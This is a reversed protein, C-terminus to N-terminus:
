GTRLRRPAFRFQKYIQTFEEGNEIIKAKGQVCVATHGGHKYVDVVLAIRPNKLLNKHMRTEYDTAILFSENDFIFSVPKVHPIDNHSTAVRCEEMDSLFDIENKTFSIM